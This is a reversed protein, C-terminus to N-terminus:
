WLWELFFQKLLHVQFMGLVTCLLSWFTLIWELPSPLFSSFPPLLFIHLLSFLFIFLSRLWSLSWTILVSSSIGVVLSTRLLSSVDDVFPVLIEILWVSSHNCWNCTDIILLVFDTQFKYFKIKTMMTILSIEWISM